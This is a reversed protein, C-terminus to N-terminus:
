PTRAIRELLRREELAHVLNASAWRAAEEEDDYLCCAELYLREGLQGLLTYLERTSRRLGELRRATKQTATQM